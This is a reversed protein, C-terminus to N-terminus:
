GGGAAALAADLSPHMPVTSELGTLGVMRAIPSGGAVVVQLQQQHQRLGQALEFLMAIGASDIYTTAALDIVLGDSQNSLPARLREEVWRVNSADIEGEVRAVAIGGRLEGTVNALLTV